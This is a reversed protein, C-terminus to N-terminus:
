LRPCTFHDPELWICQGNPYYNKGMGHRKNDVFDGESRVIGDEYYYVWRGVRLNNQFKGESKLQGEAYFEKEMEKVKVGDIEKFYIIKKPQNNAYTGDIEEITSDCSVLCFLTLIALFRTIM